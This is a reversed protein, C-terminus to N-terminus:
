WKRPMPSMIDFTKLLEQYAAQLGERDEQSPHDAHTKQALAQLQLLPDTPASVPAKPATSGYILGDQDIIAMLPAGTFVMLCMATVCIKKM